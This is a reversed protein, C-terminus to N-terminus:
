DEIMDDLIELIDSGNALIWSSYEIPIKVGKVAEDRVKVLNIFSKKLDKTIIEKHYLQTLIHQVDSLSGTIDYKKGLIVIKQEMEMILGILGLIPDDYYLEDSEITTLQTSQEKDVADVSVPAPSQQNPVHMKDRYPAMKARKAEGPSPTAGASVSEEAEDSASEADAEEKHEEIAEKLAKRTERFLKENFELKMGGPLELSSLYPIFWPAIAVIILTVTVTDIRLEPFLLHVIIMTLAISTIVTPIYLPVTRQKKM